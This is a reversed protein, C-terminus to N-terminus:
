ISWSFIGRVSGAIGHYDWDPFLTRDQLGPCSREGPVPIAAKM